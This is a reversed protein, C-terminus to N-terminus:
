GQRFAGAISIHHFQFHGPYKRPQLLGESRHRVSLDVAQQTRVAPLKLRHADRLDSITQPQTFLLDSQNAFVVADPAYKNLLQALFIVDQSSSGTIGVATYHGLSIQHAIETMTQVMVLEDVRTSYEPTAAPVVDVRRESEEPALELRGASHFVQGGSETLLGQKEYSACRLSTSRISITILRKPKTRGRQRVPRERLVRGRAREDFQGPSREEYTRKQRIAVCRERPGHKIRRAHRHSLSGRRITRQSFM